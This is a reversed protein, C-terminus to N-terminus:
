ALMSLRYHTTTFSSLLNKEQQASICTNAVRILAMKVCYFELSAAFISASM